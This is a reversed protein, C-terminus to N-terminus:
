IKNYKLLFSPVGGGSATILDARSMIFHVQFIHFLHRHQHRIGDDTRGTAVCAHPVILSEVKLM